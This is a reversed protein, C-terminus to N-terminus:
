LLVGQAPAELELEPQDEVWAAAYGDFFAARCAAIDRAGEALEAGPRRDLGLDSLWTDPSYSMCQRQDDQACAIAFQRLAAPGQDSREFRRSASYYTRFKYTEAM